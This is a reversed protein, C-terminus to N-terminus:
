AFAIKATVRSRRRLAGGVAGFGVIMMAWTSTEPVALLAFSGSYSGSRNTTGSLFLTHVGAPLRFDLLSGSRTQTSTGSNITVPIPTGDITSTDFRLYTAATSSIAGTSSFIFSALLSKTTTFTFSDTFTGNTARGMNDVLIPTINGFDGGVDAEYVFTPAAQASGAPLIAVVAALASVIIARKM